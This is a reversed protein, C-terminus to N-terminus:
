LRERWVTNDHRKRGLLRGAHEIRFLAPKAVALGARDRQDVLAALDGADQGAGAIEHDAALDLAVALERARDRDGAAADPTPQQLRTGDDDGAGDLAVDQRRPVDLD